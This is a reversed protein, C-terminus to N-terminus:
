FRGACKALAEKNELDSDRYKNSMPRNEKNKEKLLIRAYDVASLQEKTSRTRKCQRGALNRTDVDSVIMGPVEECSAVLNKRVLSQVDDEPLNLFDSINTKSHTRKKKKKKEEMSGTSQTLLDIHQKSLKALETRTLDHPPVEVQEKNADIQRFEHFRLLADAASYEEPRLTSSCDVKPPSRYHQPFSKLQANSCLSM